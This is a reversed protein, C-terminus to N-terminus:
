SLLFVPSIKLRKVESVSITYVPKDVPIAINIFDNPIKTPINTMIKVNENFILKTVTHMIAGIQIKAGVEFLSKWNVWFFAYFILDSSLLTARSAKLLM